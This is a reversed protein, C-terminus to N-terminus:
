GEAKLKKAKLKSGKAKLELEEKRKGLKQRGDETM